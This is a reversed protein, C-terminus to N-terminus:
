TAGPFQKQFKLSSDGVNAGAAPGWGILPARAKVDAFARM